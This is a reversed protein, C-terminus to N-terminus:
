TEENRELLAKISVLSYEKYLECREQKEGQLIDEVSLPHIGFVRALQAMILLNYGFVDLWFVSNKVRELMPTDKLQTLSDVVLM